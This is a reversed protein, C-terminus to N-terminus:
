SLTTCLGAQSAQMMINGFPLSQDVTLCSATLTLLSSYPNQPNQKLKPSLQVTISVPRSRVRYVLSGKLDCLEAQRQKQLASIYLRTSGMVGQLIAEELAPLSFISIFLTFLFVKPM